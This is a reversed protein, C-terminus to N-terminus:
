GICVLFHPSLILIKKTLTKIDEHIFNLNRKKYNKRAHGIMEPSKDIGVVHGHTKQAMYATISGPGCGLDVISKNGLSKHDISETEIPKTEISSLLQKAAENQHLANKEYELPNWQQEQEMGLSSYAHLFLISSLIKKM